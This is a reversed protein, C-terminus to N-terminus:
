PRTIGRVALSGSPADFGLLTAFTLDLTGSGSAYTGEFEITGSLTQGSGITQTWDSDPAAEYSRGADDVATANKFLPITLSDDTGNTISVVMRLHGDQDEVRTVTASVDGRAGRWSGTVSGGGTRGTSGGTSGGTAGGTAGGTSGGTEGGAPSGDPDTSGQREALKVSLVGPIGIEQITMGQVLAILLLGVFGAVSWRLANSPADAM